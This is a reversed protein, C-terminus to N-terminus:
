LKKRREKEMDRYATRVKRTNEIIKIEIEGSVIKFIAALTQTRGFVSVFFNDRCRQWLLIGYIAWKTNRMYRSGVVGVPPLTQVLKKKWKM